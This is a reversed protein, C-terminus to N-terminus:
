TGCWGGVCVRARWVFTCVCARVEASAGCQTTFVVCPRHPPRALIDGGFDVHFMLSLM